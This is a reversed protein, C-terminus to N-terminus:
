SPNPTEAAMAGTRTIAPALRHMIRVAVAPMRFSRHGHQHRLSRQRAEALMQGHHESALQGIRDPHTFM